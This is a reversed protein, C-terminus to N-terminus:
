SDLIGSSSVSLNDRFTPLSNGNSAAYCGLLDCNELRFKDESVNCSLILFIALLYLPLSLHRHYHFTAFINTFLLAVILPIRQTHDAPTGRTGAGTVSSGCQQIDVHESSKGGRIDCM